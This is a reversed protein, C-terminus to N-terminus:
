AQLPGQVSRAFHAASLARLFKTRYFYITPRHHWNGTPWNEAAARLADLDVVGDDGQEALAQVFRLVDEKTLQEYWDAMQYGRLTQGMISEPLRGGLARHMAPRRVGDKLFAEAPLSFCFEILRRDASADREEIGWRALSRKRFIGPDFTQLLKWRRDKSSRAPMVDWGTRAAQELMEARWRPALFGFDQPAVAFNKDFRRLAVYLREPLWPAFSANLINKWRFLGSRAMLRAEHMWDGIRGTRLMDPLQDLALGASITFNGAEGTLMVTVGRKEAEAHITTWWVNNCVHGVPHAALRHDEDLLSLPPIQSTRVVVHDMNPYLEATQAALGSEDAIRGSPMPANFGDRPASTFAFMSEGRSHLQAAASTAVASSDFGSSLQAGVPGSVRRLRAAVARDVQERLAEGYDEVTKLRLEPGRPDWYRRTSVGGRGIKVVHGPEIRVVGRHFSRRGGPPLDAVFQALREPDPAADMGPLALLAPAMSAFAAYGPGECYVLPREGIPDRALVLEESRGNWVAFAFDGVMRDLLKEGWRRWAHHLFASDALTGDVRLGLAAALEERNDIRLDACILLRDKDDRLPQQDHVDEPVMRHLRRGFAADGSAAVGSADRGYAGLRDLM